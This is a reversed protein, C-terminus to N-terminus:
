NKHKQRHQQHAGHKKHKHQQQQPEKQSYNKQQQVGPSVDFLTSTEGAPLDIHLKGQSLTKMESLIVEDSV